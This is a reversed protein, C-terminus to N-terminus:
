TGSRDKPYAILGHKIGQRFGLALYFKLVGARKVDSQLMVKYCGQDWAAQLTHNLLRHGIGRDRLAEDTVVNEIIGFPRVGRTLNPVTVLICTAAIQQEHVAVFCHMLPNSRIEKWTSELRNKDPRTDRPHLQAYLRLLQPLDGQEALRITTEMSDSM